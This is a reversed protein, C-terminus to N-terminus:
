ETVIEKKCYYNRKEQALYFNEGEKLSLIKPLSKRDLARYTVIEKSTKRQQYINKVINIKQVCM